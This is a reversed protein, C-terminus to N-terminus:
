MRAWEPDAGLVGPDQGANESDGKGTYPVDYRAMKQDRTPEPQEGGRASANM